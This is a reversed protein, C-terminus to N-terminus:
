RFHWRRRAHMANASPPGSPKTPPTSAPVTNYFYVAYTGPPLCSSLTWLQGQYDFTTGVDAPLSSPAKLVPDALGNFPNGAYLLLQNNPDNNVEWNALIWSDTALQVTCWYGFGNELLPIPQDTPQLLCPHVPTPTPTPTPTITPTLTPTATPQPTRTQTPTPTLTPIPTLTPTPTPAATITFQTSTAPTLGTSSAVLTYNPGAKSIALNGLHGRRQQRGPTLTGSLVGTSPNFGIAM